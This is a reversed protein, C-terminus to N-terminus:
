FNGFLLFIEYDKLFYLNELFKLYILIGKVEEKLNCYYKCIFVKKLYYVLIEICNYM